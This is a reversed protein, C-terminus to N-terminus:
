HWVVGQKMIRLPITASGPFRSETFELAAIRMADCDEKVSPFGHQMIWRRAGELLAENATLARM